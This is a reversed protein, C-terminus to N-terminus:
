PRDGDVFRDRNLWVVIAPLPSYGRRLVIKAGQDLRESTPVDFDLADAVRDIINFLGCIYIVDVVGEDSM